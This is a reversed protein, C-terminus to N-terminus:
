AGINATTIDSEDIGWSMTIVDCGDNIAYNLVNAWSSPSNQGIYIVINAQPAIGSVCYLDLTNEISAPDTPSFLNSAGDLLVTTVNPMTYGIDAMSSELDSPLWGGGLSAIGIKVNAGTITPMNYATAIQPPTLYGTQSLNGAPVIDLLKVFTHAINSITM